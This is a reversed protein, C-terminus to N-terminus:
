YEEIKTLCFSFHVDDDGEIKIHETPCHTKYLYKMEVYHTHPHLNLLFLLLKVTFCKGRTLMWSLRDDMDTNFKYSYIFWWFNLMTEMGSDTRSMGMSTFTRALAM